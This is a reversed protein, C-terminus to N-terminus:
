VVENDGDLWCFQIEDAIVNSLFQSGQVGSLYIFDDPLDIQLAAKGDQGLITNKKKQTNGAEQNM